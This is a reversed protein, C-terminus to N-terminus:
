FQLFMGNAHAAPSYFQEDFLPESATLTPPTPEPRKSVFAELGPPPSCSSSLSSTSFSLPNPIKSFSRRRESQLPPPLSYHYSPPPTPLLPAKSSLPPRPSSSRFKEKGIPGFGGKRENEEDDNGRRRRRSDEHAFQCERGKFCYGDNGYYEPCPQNKKKQGKRKKPVTTGVNNWGRANRKEYPDPYYYRYNNDNYQEERNFYWRQPHMGRSTNRPQPWSPTRLDDWGHAFTCKQRGFWCVDFQKGNFKYNYYRCMRTKYAKERRKEGFQDHFNVTRNAYSHWQPDFFREVRHTNFPTRQNSFRKEYWPRGGWHLYRNWSRFIEEEEEVIGRNRFPHYSLEDRIADKWDNAIIVPCFIIM